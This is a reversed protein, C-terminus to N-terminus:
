YGFYEPNTKFYVMNRHQVQIVIGCDVLKKNISYFTSRSINLEKYIDEAVMPIGAENTIINSDKHIYPIVDFLFAKDTKNLINSKSLEKNKVRYFRVFRHPNKAQKQAYTKNRQRKQESEGMLFEVSKSIFEFQEDNSEVCGNHEYEELEGENPLWENQM